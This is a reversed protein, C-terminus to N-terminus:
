FIIERFEAERRSAKRTRAERHASSRLPRAIPLCPPRAHAPVLPIELSAGLLEYGVEWRRREARPARRWARRPLRIRSWRDHCTFPRPRAPSLRKERAGEGGTRSSSLLSVRLAVSSFFPPFFPLFFRSPLFSRYRSPYRRCIWNITVFNITSLKHLTNLASGSSFRPALYNDGPGVDIIELPSQDQM